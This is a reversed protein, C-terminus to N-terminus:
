EKEIYKFANRSFENICDHACKSKKNMDNTASEILQNALGIGRYVNDWFEQANTRTTSIISNFRSDYNNWIDNTLDGGVHFEDTGYNSTAFQYESAFPSAFIRYYAGVALQQIGEETNYYSFDRSTELKEELFNENCSTVSLLLILLLYQLTYLKINKKM